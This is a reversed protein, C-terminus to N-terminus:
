TLVIFLHVYVYHVYIYIDLVFSLYRIYSSYLM